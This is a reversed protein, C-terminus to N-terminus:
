ADKNKGKFGGKKGGFTMKFEDGIMETWAKKQTDTLVSKVKTEAEKRLTGIKQFAEKGKAEKMLEKIEKDSDEMITKVNDKQESTFKLATQVKPDTFAKSGKLQLQIQNLRKMQDADLVGSIAKGIAEDVKTVQEDTLKLEKKVQDNHILSAPSTPAGRGGGGGGFGGQRQGSALGVALLGAALTLALTGAVRM